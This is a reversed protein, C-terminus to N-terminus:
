FFIDRPEIVCSESEELGAALEAGHAALYECIEDATPRCSSELHWCTEFANWLDGVVGTIGEPRVVPPVMSGIAKCIRLQAM